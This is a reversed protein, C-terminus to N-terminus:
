PAESRERRRVSLRYPRVGCVGGRAACPWRSPGRRGQVPSRDRRPVGRARRRGISRAPRGGSSPQIGRDTGLAVSRPRAQRQDQGSRPGATGAAGRGPTSAPTGPPYVGDAILAEIETLVTRYLAPAEAALAGIHLGKVQVQHRFVLDHTNLDADGSAAGFVVVRGLFPKAVALSAPFTAQGVSELVLDVGGTLRITEAALDPRAGDLVEDAGLAKVVDHKAPSATAVM